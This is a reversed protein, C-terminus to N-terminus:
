PQAPGAPGPLAVHPRKALLPTIVERTDEPAEFQSTTATLATLNSIRFIVGDDNVGGYATTGYLSSDSGQILASEPWSGDSQGTFAYLVTVNGALDMRYVTGCGPGYRGTCSADGGSETTGYFNGDSAQMLAAPYAGDPGSFSHLSTFNGATDIKFVTGCGQWQAGGSCPVSGGFLTTGYMSGDSGLILASDPYAGDHETFSHLDMVAGSSTMQFVTGCGLTAYSSCTLVGGASTTGYFDGNSQQLLAATPYAGESGSFTHLATAVNTNNINFISGCGLASISGATESCSTNGGGANAGYLTGNGAQILSADPAIGLPSNFPGFSLISSFGASASFSFVSGCGAAISTGGVDCDSINTGGYIATGYLSGNSALLLSSAPYAGDLGTLSHLTTVNGSTDSKYITGCGKLSSIYGCSLDGGAETVGYMSGDGAFIPAGWPVAGEMTHNFSHLTKISPGAVVNVTATASESTNAANTAVVHYTGTQAPATYIGASTISGGSSGEKVSWAVTGGGSVTAAFSQVSGTPVSVTSPSITVLPLVTFTATASGGGPAQNTVVVPYAGVTALDGASLSITLQSASVFTATHSIGNFTVKSSTLLGSGNVTLTQPISGVLLSPPVLASIIPAPNNVQVTVIATGIAEPSVQSTASVTVTPQIPVSAPATYLGTSSIIGVTADGGAIGNVSWTVATSQTGSVTSTFQQQNGVALQVAPPSVTVTVLPAISPCSTSCITEIVSNSAGSQPDYLWIGYTGPAKSTPTPDTWNLTGDALSTTSIPSEVTGTPDQVYIDLASSNATLGSATFRFTAGSPGVCWRGDQCGASSSFTSINLKSPHQNTLQLSLSGAVSSNGTLSSDGILDTHFDPLAPIRYLSLDLAAGFASDLGVVGDFPTAQFIGFCGTCLWQLEPSGPNTGGAMIIPLQSLLSDAQWTSRVNALENSGSSDTALDIAFQDQLLDNIGGPTAPPFVMKSNPLNAVVTLLGYRGSGLGETFVNALPTGLAPGAIAIVNRVSPKAATDQALASLTVPVGESHALVDIPNGQECSTAITDLFGAVTKGNSQLGDWWDYDIGYVVGYPVRNVFSPNNLMTTYSGEVSSLMGHIVVLVRRSSTAPSCQGVPSFAGVTPSWILLNQTPSGQPRGPIEVVFYAGIILGNSSNLLNGLADTCAADWVATAAKQATNVTASIAEYFVQGAQNSFSTLASMASGAAPMNLGFNFFFTIGPLAVQSSALQATSTTNRVINSQFKPTASFSLYLAPGTEALLQNQPQNPPVSVETLTVINDALLEGPAITASSGDPLTLTGGAATSIPATVTAITGAVIVGFSASKTSDAVSTAALSVTYPTPATPPATYLGSASITGLTTNGGITGNVSWSVSSNYSGTGSVTASCQGTKGTPVSASACTVSVSTITPSSGGGGGSNSGGGGCGAILSLLVPIIALRVFRGSTRSFVWGRVLAVM